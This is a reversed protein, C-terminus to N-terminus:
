NPSESDSTITQMRLSNFGLENLSQRFRTFLPVLLFCRWLLFPAMFRKLDELCFVMALLLIEFLYDKWGLYFGYFLSNCCYVRYAIGLGAIIFITRYSVQTWINGSTYYAGSLNKFM